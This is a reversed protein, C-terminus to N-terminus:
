EQIGYFEPDQRYTKLPLNRYVQEKKVVSKFEEDFYFIYHNVVDENQDNQTRYIHPIKWGIFEPDFKRKLTNCINMFYKISDNYLEAKQLYKSEMQADPNQSTPSYKWSYQIEQQKLFEYINALGNMKIYEATQEASTFSPAVAGFLIKRYGRINESESLLFEKIMISGLRNMEIYKEKSETSVFSSDAIRAKIKKYDKLNDYESLFDKIMMRSKEISTPKSCSALICILSLMAILYHKM